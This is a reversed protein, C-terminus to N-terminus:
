GMVSRIVIENKEIRAAPKKTPMTTPSVPM